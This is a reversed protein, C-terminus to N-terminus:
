LSVDVNLFKRSVQNLEELELDVSSLIKENEEKKLKMEDIEEQLIRNETLIEEIKAKRRNVRCYAFIHVM